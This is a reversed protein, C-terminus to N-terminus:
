CLVRASKNSNASLTNIPQATLAPHPTSLVKPAYPLGSAAVRFGPAGTLARINDMMESACLIGSEM